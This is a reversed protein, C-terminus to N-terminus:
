FLYGIGAYFRSIEESYGMEMRLFFNPNFLSLTGGFGYTRKHDQFINKYDSFNSFVRGADTFFYGGIRSDWSPIEILWSRIEFNYTLAGKDIFRRFPYGRLTSSFGADALDWFPTEGIVQRWFIRGAFTIDRLFHITYYQHHRLLFSANTHTSIGPITGVLQFESWNGTKPLIENDRNEWFFGTGITSLYTTGKGIPETISLQTNPGRDIALEYVHSGLILIDFRKIDNEVKFLPYRGKYNAIVGRSEYFYDENDWKALEFPTTNGIGFYNNQFLRLANIEYSARYDTGYNKPKDYIFQVQAFGKTSLIVNAFFSNKFPKEDQGFNYRSFIGGGFFGFDSSYSFAPLFGIVVSDKPTTNVQAYSNIANLLVLLIVLSLRLVILLSKKLISYSKLQYNVKKSYSKLQKLLM